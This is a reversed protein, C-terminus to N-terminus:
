KRCAESYTKFQSAHFCVLDTAQEWHLEYLTGKTDVCTFSGPTVILPVCNDMPDPRNVASACAMCSALWFLSFLKKLM